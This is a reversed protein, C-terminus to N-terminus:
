CAGVGCDSDDRSAVMPCALGYFPNPALPVPNGTARGPWNGRTTRHGAAWLLQCDNVCTSTHGTNRRHSRLIKLDGPDVASVIHNGTSRDGPRTPGFSNVEQPLM